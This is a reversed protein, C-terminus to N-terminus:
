RSKKVSLNQLLAPTKVTFNSKDEYKYDARLNKGHQGGDDVVIHRGHNRCFHIKVQFFCNKTRDLTKGEAKKCATLCSPKHRLDVVIGIRNIIKEAIYKRMENHIDYFYGHQNYQEKKDM